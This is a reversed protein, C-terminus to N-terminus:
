QASPSGQAIAEAPSPASKSHATGIGHEGLGIRARLVQAQHNAFVTENPVAGSSDTLEELRAARNAAQELAFIAGYYFRPREQAGASSHPRAITARFM